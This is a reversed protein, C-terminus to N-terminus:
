PCHPVFLEPELYSFMGHVIISGPKKPNFITSTPRLKAIGADKGRITIRAKLPTHLLAHQRFCTNLNRHIHITFHGKRESFSLSQEQLTITPLAATGRLSDESIQQENDAGFDYNIRESEKSSWPSTVDDKRLEDNLWPVDYDGRLAPIADLIGLDGPHRRLTPPYGVPM